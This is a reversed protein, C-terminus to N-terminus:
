RVAGAAVGTMRSPAGADPFLEAVVAEGLAPGLTMGAGSLCTVVHVGPIPEVRFLPQGDTRRAYVGQWRQLVRLGGIELMGSLCGLIASEIAANDFPSLSRGYEHSDGVILTGDPRQAAMVHIGAEDLFPQERAVRRRLDDISPCTDFARYHRLTLGGAIHMGTRWSPASLMLMMLKCKTVPADWYVEPLLTEFDAGTCVIICGGRIVDGGALRVLGSDVGVAAAPGAFIVGHSRLWEAIRACAERPDVALESESRMGGLLGDTRVGPVRAAIQDNTWLECGQPATGGGVFEHLVLFEDDRYALHLSGCRDARLGCEDSLRMWLEASRLALRRFEGSPTGVPWIMGFNRVSAGAPRPDRDVVCVRLGIRRAAAAHSLGVIGSGIVVLDFSGIM